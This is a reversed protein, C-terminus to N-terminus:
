TKNDNYPKTQTRALSQSAGVLLLTKPRSRSTTPKTREIRDQSIRFVGFAWLRPLRDQMCELTPYLLLVQNRPIMNGEAWKLLAARWSTLAVHIGCTQHNYYNLIIVYANTALIYRITNLRGLTL